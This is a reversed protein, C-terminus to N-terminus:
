VSVQAKVHMCHQKCVWLPLYPWAAKQECLKCNMRQKKWVWVKEGCYFRANLVCYGQYQDTHLWGGVSLEDVMSAKQECAAVSLDVEGRM